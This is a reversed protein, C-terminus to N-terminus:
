RVLDVTGNYTGGLKDGDKMEVMWVYDGSTCHDGKNTLKGNWPREPDSTEYVLAGTKSDFISFHFKVGLTKLAEPLFTDEIGDGNPSFTKPALLNYDSDIRVTKETRDVCGKPNTVTLAVHYVGAKKYM